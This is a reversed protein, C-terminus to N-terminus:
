LRINACLQMGKLVFGVLTVDLVTEKISLINVFNTQSFKNCSSFPIMLFSTGVM